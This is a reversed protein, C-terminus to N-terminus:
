PDESRYTPGPPGFRVHVLLYCFFVVSRVTTWYIIKQVSRPSLLFCFPGTCIALDPSSIPWPDRGQNMPLQYDAYSYGAYYYDKNLM